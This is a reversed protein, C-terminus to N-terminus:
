FGDDRREDFGPTVGADFCAQNGDLRTSPIM